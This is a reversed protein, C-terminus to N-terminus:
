DTAEAYSGAKTTYHVSLYIECSSQVSLPSAKNQQLCQPQSRGPGITLVPGPFKGERGSQLLKQTKGKNQSLLCKEM